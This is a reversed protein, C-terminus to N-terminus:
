TRGARDYETSRRTQDRSLAASKRDYNDVKAELAIKFCELRDLEKEIKQIKPDLEMEDELKWKLKETSGYRYVAKARKLRRHIEVLDIRVKSLHDNCYAYWAVMATYTQQLKKPPLITPNIPMQSTREDPKDTDVIELSRLRTETEKLISRKKKLIKKKRKKKVM